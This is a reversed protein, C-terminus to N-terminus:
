NEPFYAFIICFIIVLSLGLIVRRTVFFPTTGEAGELACVSIVKTKTQGFFCFFFVYNIPAGNNKILMICYIYTINGDSDSPSQHCDFDQSSSQYCGSDSNSSPVSALTTTKEESPEPDTLQPSVLSQQPAEPITLIASLKDLLQRLLGILERVRKLLEFYLQIEDAMTELSGVIFKL